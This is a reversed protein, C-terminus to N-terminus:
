PLTGDPRPLSVSAILRDFALHALEGAREHRLLRCTIHYGLVLSHLHFALAEADAAPDIEGADIAGQFLRTLSALLRRQSAELFDRQPGPQDDLESAAAILVCGGPRQEDGRLWGLWREFLARIRRVGRPVRLAPQFVQEAFASASAQLIEVGLAEKSGFHAFLGGKSVGLSGALSGITVGELGSQSAVRVAEELVRRRMSEGKVVVL